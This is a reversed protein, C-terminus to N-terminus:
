KDEYAPKEFARLEIRASDLAAGEVFFKNEGGLQKKLEALIEKKPPNGLDIMQGSGKATIKVGSDAVKGRIRVLVTTLKM